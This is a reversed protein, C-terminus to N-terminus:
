ALRGSYKELLTWATTGFEGKWKAYFSGLAARFPTTDVNNITMGDQVLTNRAADTQMQVNRTGLAAAIRANRTVITQIDPPLAAWSNPNVALWFGVWQHNTVSLFKQV